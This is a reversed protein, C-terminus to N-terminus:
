EAGRNIKATKPTVLLWDEGIGAIDGDVALCTKRVRTVARKLEAVDKERLERIKVLLIRGSRVKEQIRNADAFSSLKEVQITLKADKREEDQF